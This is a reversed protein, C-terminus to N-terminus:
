DDLVQPLGKKENKVLPARHPEPTLIKASSFSSLMQAKKLSFLRTDIVATRGCTVVSAIGWCRVTEEM